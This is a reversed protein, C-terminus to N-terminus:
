YFIQENSPLWSCHLISAITIIVDALFISGGHFAIWLAITLFPILLLCLVPFNWSTKNENGCDCKFTSLQTMEGHLTVDKKIVATIEKQMEQNNVQYREVISHMKLKSITKSPMLGVLYMHKLSAKTFVQPTFKSFSMGPNFFGELRIESNLIVKQIEKNNAIDVITQFLLERQNIREKILNQQSTQVTQFGVVNSLSALVLLVVACISLGILSKKDM